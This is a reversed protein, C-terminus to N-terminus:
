RFNVLVLLDVELALRAAAIAVSAVAAALAVPVGMDGAMVGPVAASITLDSVVARRPVSWTSGVCM